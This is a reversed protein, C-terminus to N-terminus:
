RDSRPVASSDADAFGGDARGGTCPIGGEAGPQTLSPPLCAGRHGRVSLVAPNDAPGPSCVFRPHRCDDNCDCLQACLGVDSVSGQRTAALLCYSDLRARSLPDFGCGVTGVTCFGTCARFTGLTECSGNGCAEATCDGGLPVGPPTGDVCAGSGLDCTRGGCEFDGGCTPSCFGNAGEAQPPACALDLRGLCKEGPTAGQGGPSCAPLCYRNGPSLEVCEATNEAAACADSSADCRATCLGNSPGGQGHATAIAASSAALCTFPPACDDDTRCHTGVLPRRAPTTGGEGTDPPPIM